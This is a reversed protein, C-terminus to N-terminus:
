LATACGTRVGSRRCYHVQFECISPTRGNTSEILLRVRHATVTPFRETLMTGLRKEALINRWEEGDM